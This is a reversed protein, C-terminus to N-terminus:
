SRRARNPPSGTCGTRITVDCTAAGALDLKPQYALHVRGARLDHDLRAALSRALSGIGDARMLLQPGPQVLMGQM